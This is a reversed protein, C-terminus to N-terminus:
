WQYQNTGCCAISDGCDTLGSVLSAGSDSQVHTHAGTYCSGCADAPVWGISVYGSVNYTGGDSVLIDEVHVYLVKGVLTGSGGSGTYLHVEVADDQPQNSCESLCGIGLRHYTKISGIGVGPACEIRQTGGNWTAWDLANAWGSFNVHGSTSPCYISLRSTIEGSIGSELYYTM